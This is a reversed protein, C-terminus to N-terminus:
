GQNSANKKTEAADKAMRSKRNGARSVAIHEPPSGSLAMPIQFIFGAREV